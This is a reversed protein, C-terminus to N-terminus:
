GMLGVSLIEGSINAYIGLGHDAFMEDLDYDFYIEGNPYVYLFGLSIRCLFEETTIPPFDANEGWIEVFGDEGAAYEVACQRLKKDWGASEAVIRRLNELAIDAAPSDGSDCYLSVSVERGLWKIEGDYLKDKLPNQLIFTGMEDNITISDPKKRFLSLISM